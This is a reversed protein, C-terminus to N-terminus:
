KEMIKCYKRVRKEGIITNYITFIDKTIKEEDEKINSTQLMYLSYEVSFLYLDFSLKYFSNNEYFKARRIRIKDEETNDNRVREVEVYVGNYNKCQEKLLKLANTGYGKNQYQPLIAFYDLCLYQVNEIKNIIMFGIFKDDDVIKIIKTIGKNYTHKLFRYSKRENDPFLKEYEEYMTRKFEKIDVNVLELM